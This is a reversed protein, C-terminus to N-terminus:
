RREAPHVGARMASSTSSIPNSAATTSRPPSSPTTSRTYPRASTSASCSPRSRPARRRKAHSATPTVISRRLDAHSATSPSSTLRGPDRAPRALPLWLRRWDVAGRLETSWPLTAALRTRAM